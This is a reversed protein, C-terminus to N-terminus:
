NPRHPMTCITNRIQRAFHSAPLLPHTQFHSEGPDEEQADDTDSDMESLGHGEDATVMEEEDTTTLDIVNSPQRHPEQEQELDSESDTETSDLEIAKRKRLTRTPPRSLFASSRRHSDNHVRFTRRTRVPTRAHTPLPMMDRSAGPVSPETQLHLRTNRLLSKSTHNAHHTRPLMMTKNSTKPTLIRRNRLAGVRAGTAPSVKRFGQRRRPSVILVEHDEGDSDTDTYHSSSSSASSEVLRARKGGQPHQPGRRRHRHAGLAM